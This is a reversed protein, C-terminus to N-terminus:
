FNIFPSLTEKMAVNTHEVSYLITKKYDRVIIKTIRTEPPDNTGGKSRYYDLYLYKSNEVTKLFNHDYVAKKEDVKFPNLVVLPSTSLREKYIRYWGKTSAGLNNITVLALHSYDSFDVTKPTIIKTSSELVITQKKAGTRQIHEQIAQTQVQGFSIMPLFVSLLILLLKKM